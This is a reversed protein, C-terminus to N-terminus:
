CMFRMAERGVCVTEGLDEVFRYHGISDTETLEFPLEPEYNGLAFGRSRGFLRHFTASRAPARDSRQATRVTVSWGANQPV